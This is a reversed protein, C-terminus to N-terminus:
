ARQPRSLRLSATFQVNEVIARRRATLSGISRDFLYGRTTLHDHVASFAPPSGNHIDRQRHGLLQTAVTFWTRMHIGPHILTAMAVDRAMVSAGGSADIVAHVEYGDGRMDLAAIASRHQRDHRLRHDQLPRDARRRGALRALALRQDPRSPRDGFVRRLEPMIRGNNGSGFDHICVKTPM